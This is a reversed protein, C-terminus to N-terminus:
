AKEIESQTFQNSEREQALLIKFGQYVQENVLGCYSAIELDYHLQVLDSDARATAAIISISLIALLYRM